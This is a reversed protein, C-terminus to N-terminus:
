SRSTTTASTVSRTPARVRARTAAVRGPPGDPVAFAPHAHAEEVVDQSTGVYGLTLAPPAGPSGDASGHVTIWGDLLDTGYDIACITDHAVTRVTYGAPRRSLVTTAVDDVIVLHDYLDMSPNADRRAINRPFKLVLHSAALDVPHDRFLPPVEGIATVPLIWPGFADYEASRVCPRYRRRASWPLGRTAARRGVCGIPV